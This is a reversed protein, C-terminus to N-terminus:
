KSQLDPFPFEREWGFFRAWKRQGTRTKLNCRFIHELRAAYRTTKANIPNRKM